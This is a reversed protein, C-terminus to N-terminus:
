NPPFFTEEYSRIPLIRVALKKKDRLLILGLITAFRCRYCAM